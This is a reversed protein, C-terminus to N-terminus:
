KRSYQQQEIVELLKNDPPTPSLGPFLDALIGQFLPVDELVFKPLNVDRVAEILIHAEAEELQEPATDSLSYLSPPFWWEHPHWAM